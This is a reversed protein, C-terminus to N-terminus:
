ENKYKYKEKWNELDAHYVEKLRDQLSVTDGPKVSFAINNTRDDSLLYKGFSVLENAMLNRIAKKKDELKDLENLQDFITM